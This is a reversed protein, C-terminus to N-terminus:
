RKWRLEWQYIYNRSRCSRVVSSGPAAELIVQLGERSPQLNPALPMESFAILSISPQCLLSSSQLDRGILSDAALGSHYIIRSCWYSFCGFDCATSFPVECLFAMLSFASSGSFSLPARGGGGVVRGQWWWWICCGGGGLTLSRFTEGWWRFRDLLDLCGM